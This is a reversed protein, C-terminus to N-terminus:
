EAFPIGSIVPKVGEIGVAKLVMNAAKVAVDSRTTPALVLLSALPLPRGKETQLPFLVYPRIVGRSTDFEMKAEIGPRKLLVIRWESEARYAPVKLGPLMRRLESSLQTAVDSMFAPDVDNQRLFDVATDLVLDIREIQEEKEYVVRLFRVFHPFTQLTADHIAQTRFGLAYRAPTGSGYARWQSLDDKASSFSVVYIETLEEKLAREVRNLVKVIAPEDKVEKRKDSLQELVLNRGYAIESPDNMFSFNTARMARSSVIGEFGGATTYHYLPLEPDFLEGMDTPRIKTLQRDLKQRLGAGLQFVLRRNLSNAVHEVTRGRAYLPPEKKLEEPIFQLDHVVPIIIPRRRDHASALAAQVERRISENNQTGESVVVIMADTEAIAEDTLQPAMVKHGRRRLVVALDEAYEGDEASSSIYIAAM